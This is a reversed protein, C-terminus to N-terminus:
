GPLSWQVSFTNGPHNGRSTVVGLDGRAQALTQVDIHAKEAAEEVDSVRKPGSALEGRLFQQARQRREIQKAMASGASPNAPASERQKRVERRLQKRAAAAVDGRANVVTSRSVGAIKAVATLSAGPNAALARAARQRPGDAPDSAAAAAAAAAATVRSRSIRKRKRRLARRPQARPQRRVPRDLVPDVDPEASRLLPALVAALVAAATTPQLNLASLNALIASLDSAPLM